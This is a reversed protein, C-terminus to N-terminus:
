GGPVAATRHLVFRHVMGAVERPPTFNIGGFRVTGEITDGSRVADHVLVGRPRMGNMFGFSLGDATVKLYQLPMALEVGEEPWSVLEGRVKGGEVRLRLEQPHRVADNIWWEGRWVGLYDRMEEPTPFPTALLGEVTESPPPRREVEEVDARLTALDSPAGYSTTLLDLTTRAMAGRGEMLLDEVVQRLLSEPPVVAAGYKERLADYAPLVSTTPLDRVNLRSYDRFLERMGLYSGLFQMSTHSERALKERHLLWSKPAAATLRGWAEESWGFRVDMTVYHLPAANRTRAMLKNIIFNSELHTPADLALVFRYTDRTAAAWTALIGGSSTGALVRPAGTRFKADVAPLLEKEIFDLFREGGQNRDSGSVSMGPPTLDRVRGDYDDLNDIAVIVAEPMQGQEVLVGTTTVLPRFLFEGDFAVITPYRRDNKAFSKPLHVFVRRTEGLIASNILFSEGSPEPTLTLASLVLALALSSM